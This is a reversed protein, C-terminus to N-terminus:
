AAVNSSSVTAAAGTAMLQLGTSALTIWNQEAAYNLGSLLEQDDLGNQAALDLVSANGITAGAHMDKSVFLCLLRVANDRRQENSM